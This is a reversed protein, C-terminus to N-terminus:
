HICFIFIYFNKLDVGYPIKIIKNENFGKNIFSKKAFNSPVCIYDSIEYEKIEKEVIKPSPLKPNLGLIEYEKKLIESQFEIHSSGRELVKICNFKKAKLFSKLSFSSWGVLIDTDAYDIKRSAQYDFFDTVFNDLNFIQNLIKIQSISRSIVEKFIFSKIKKKEIDFNNKFYFKPYSTLLQHLSKRKELEEALNFAHFRGGVIISVKM